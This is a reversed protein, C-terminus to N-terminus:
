LEEELKLHHKLNVILNKYRVDQQVNALMPNNTIGDIISLRITEEDRPAQSSLMVERAIWGDLLYFYDDGVLQLPFNIKMCIKVYCEVCRLAQEINNQAAYGSSARIYFLLATHANLKGINFTEIMTEIRRVSQEFYAENDAELMLAESANSIVCLLQQYMNVQFIEKAKETNGLMMQATAILQENGLQIIADEGLLELVQQPEGKLIYTLAELLNAENTLKYDGSFEKVRICLGQIKKTVQEKDDAKNFYNVYLQAMKLLFPFCSYYEEILLEITRDVEEFPEKSFRRALEEYMNMIRENTLQPKYGLLEDISVNFYTALKPLISIDPYSQGKEWKSVAARSVGMFRAIDEQTVNLKKRNNMFITAFQFNDM